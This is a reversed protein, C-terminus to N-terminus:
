PTGHRDGNFLRRSIASATPSESRREMGTVTSSADASPLPLPSESRREMGTVSSSADSAPLPESGPQAANTVLVVTQNRATLQAALEAAVGGSDASMGGTAEGIDAALIWVGEPETVEAPGQALIIGRDPEQAPDTKDFGLIEIGKFGAGTLEQRWVDPGALAHHPRSSDAFRWWGDLGGFTLDLWGQGRLTELAVLYGSPALLNRCHGLTESLYRTAHLM